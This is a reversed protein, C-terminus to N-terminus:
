IWHWHFLVLGLSHDLLPHGWSLTLNHLGVLPFLVFLEKHSNGHASAANEQNFLNFVEISSVPPTWPCMPIKYSEDQSRINLGSTDFRTSNQVLQCQCICPTPVVNQVRVCILVARCKHWFTQSNLRNAVTLCRDEAKSLTTLLRFKPTGAQHELLDKTPYYPDIPLCTSSGKLSTSCTFLPPVGGGGFFLSSLPLPVIYAKVAGLESRKKAQFSWPFPSSICCCM